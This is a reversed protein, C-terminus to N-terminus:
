CRASKASFYFAKHATGIAQTDGSCGTKSYIKCSGSSTHGSIFPRGDSTILNSCSSTSSGIFCTGKGSTKCVFIAGNVEYVAVIFLLVTISGKM